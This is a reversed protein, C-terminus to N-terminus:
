KLWLQEVESDNTGKALIAGAEVLGSSELHPNADQYGFGLKSAYIETVTLSNILQSM